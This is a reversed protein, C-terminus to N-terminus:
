NMLILIHRPVRRFIGLMGIQHNRPKLTPEPLTEGVRFEFKVIKIQRPLTHLALVGYSDAFAFTCTYQLPLEAVGWTAGVNM